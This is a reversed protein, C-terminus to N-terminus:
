CVGEAGAMRLALATGGSILTPLRGPGRSLVRKGEGGLPDTQPGRLGGGWAELPWAWQPEGERGM